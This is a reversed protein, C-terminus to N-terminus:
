IPRLTCAGTSGSATPVCPCAVSIVWVDSFVTQDLGYALAVKGLDLESLMLENTLFNGDFNDVLGM